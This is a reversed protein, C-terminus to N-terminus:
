LGLEKEKKALDQQKQIAETLNNFGLQRYWPIRGKLSERIKRISEETHHKGKMQSPIGAKFYNGHINLKAKQSIQKRYENSFQKNKHHIRTHEGNSILMLNEIRNDSRIGNIHHIVEGPLLFRGIYKEMVLRHEQIRNNRARPHTPSYVWIYGCSVQRGGKWAPNNEGAISARKIM